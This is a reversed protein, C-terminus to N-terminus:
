HGNHSFHMHDKTAGAWAGGWGWGISAFAAVMKGTVMGKRHRTRDFYKRAKPDRSQGCGVYPNEVPNVDVALGYAHNSWHGTGSTIKGGNCPSPVAQRCSFSGTVDGDKPRGRIPGYFAAFSMHRIPFHLAYLKRFVRALPAAATANVVMRGPHPKGDYGRYTVTLMRLGSLGVPCGKHWFKEDRIQARAAPSLPAISSQFAPTARQPQARTADTQAAPLPLAMAAIALAAVVAGV